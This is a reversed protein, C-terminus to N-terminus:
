APRGQGSTIPVVLEHWGPSPLCCFRRALDGAAPDWVVALMLPLSVRVSLAFRSHARGRSSGLDPRAVTVRGRGVGLGPVPEDIREGLTFALRFPDEGVFDDPGRQGRRGAQAL